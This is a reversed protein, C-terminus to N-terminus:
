FDEKVKEAREKFFEKLDHISCWALLAIASMLDSPPDQWVAYVNKLIRSPLFLNSVTDWPGAQLNQRSEYSLYHLEGKSSLWRTLDPVPQKNFIEIDKEENYVTTTYEDAWTTM